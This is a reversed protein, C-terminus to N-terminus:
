QWQNEGGGQGVVCFTGGRGDESGVSSLPRLRVSYKMPVQSKKLAKVQKEEPKRSASTRFYTRTPCLIPLTTEGWSKVIPYFSNLKRVPEQRSIHLVWETKFQCLIVSMWLRTRDRNHQFYNASAIVSFTNVTPIHFILFTLKIM